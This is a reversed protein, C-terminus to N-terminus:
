RYCRRTTSRPHFPPPLPPARFPTSIPSRPSTHAPARSPTHSLTTYAAHPLYSYPPHHPAHQSRVQLRKIIDDRSIMYCKTFTTTMLCEYRYTEIDLACLAGIYDGPHIRKIEKKGLDASDYVVLEGRIVIYMERGADGPKFILEGAVLPYLFLLLLLSLILFHSFSPIIM